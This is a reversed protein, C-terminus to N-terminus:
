NQWDNPNDRWKALLALEADDIDGLKRATAILSSYGTLTRLKIGADAFNKTAAALEYSFIGAVGIVNAGEKAAAACANLVSGGTSILDDIVVTNAGNLIRGEIQRGQGHDKPKSRVYVMPLNLREAVWAAHPIGATATGAIIDVQPYERAILEALGDAINKRVIPYAITLRNDTYIPSIMGSAWTFPKNPSLTVAGISLLDRAIIENYNTM